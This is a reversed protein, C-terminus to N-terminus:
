ESNFEARSMSQQELNGDLVARLQIMRGHIRKSDKYFRLVLTDSSLRTDKDRLGFFSTGPGFLDERGYWSLGTAARFKYEGLPMKTEFTEGGRVFIVVQDRPRAVNVLKVFYDGGNDTILKFPAIGGRSLGSQIVGTRPTPLVKLEKGPAASPPNPSLSSLRELASLDM